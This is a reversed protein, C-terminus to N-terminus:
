FLIVQVTHEPGLGLDPKDLNATITDFM